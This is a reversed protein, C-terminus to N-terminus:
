ECIRRYTMQPCYLSRFSMDPWRQKSQQTISDGVNVKWIDLWVGHGCDCPARALREVVFQDAERYRFFVRAM